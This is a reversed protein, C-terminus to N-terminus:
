LAHTNIHIYLSQHSKLITSLKWHFLDKIYQSSDMRVATDFHNLYQTWAEISWSTSRNSVFWSHSNTRSRGDSVMNSIGVTKDRIIWKLNWTPLRYIRVDELQNRFVFKAADSTIRYTSNLPDVSKNRAHDSNM